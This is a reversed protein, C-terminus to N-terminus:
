ILITSVMKMLKVLMHAAPVAGFPFFFANWIACVIFSILREPPLLLHHVLWARKNQFWKSFNEKNQHWLSKINEITNDEYDVVLFALQVWFYHQSLMPFSSVSSGSHLFVHRVSMHSQSHSVPFQPDRQFGNTENFFTFNCGLKLEDCPCQPGCFVELDVYFVTKLETYRLFRFFLCPFLRDETNWRM